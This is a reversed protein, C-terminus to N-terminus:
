AEEKTYVEITHTQTTSNYTVLYMRKGAWVLGRQLELVGGFWLMSTINLKLEEGYHELAYAKVKEFCFDRFKTYDMNRM